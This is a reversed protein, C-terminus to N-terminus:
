FQCMLFDEHFFKKLQITLLYIEFLGGLLNSQLFEQEIRKQELTLILIRTVDKGFVCVCVCEGEKIFRRVANSNFGSVGRGRDQTPPQETSPPHHTAGQHETPPEKTSPPHRSRGSTRKLFVKLVIEKWVFL